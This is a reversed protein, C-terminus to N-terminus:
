NNLFSDKRSPEQPARRPSAARKPPAPKKVAKRLIYSGDAELNGSSMKLYSFKPKVETVTGVGVEVEMSGLSEGSQPDILEEGELFVAYTEGKSVAGEGRNIIATDGMAKVVRMPYISAVMESVLKDAANSILKSLAGAGVHSVGPYTAGFKQTGSWKLKRSAFEIIKVQLTGSVSSKVLEEGTMRIVERNNNSIGLSTLEAIVIYDAGSAQSLRALEAVAADGGLIFDKENEFIDENDRNLVDFRRSGVIADSVTQRLLSGYQKHSGVVVISRRNTDAGMREFKAYRLTVVAEWGAESLAYADDVSYGLIPANVPSRLVKVINSNLATVMLTDEEGNALIDTALNTSEMSAQLDVGFAQGAANVLASQIAAERTLGTGEATLSAETVQAAVQAPLGAGLALVFAFVAFLQNMTPGKM